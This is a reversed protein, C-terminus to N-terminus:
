RLARLGRRWFSWITACCWIFMAYAYIPALGKFIYTHDSSAFKGTSYHINASGGDGIILAEIDFDYADCKYAELSSKYFDIAGKPNEFSAPRKGKGM